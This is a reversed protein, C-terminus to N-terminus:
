FRSYYPLANSYLGHEDEQITFIKLDSVIDFIIYINHLYDGIVFELKLKQFKRSNGVGGGEGM